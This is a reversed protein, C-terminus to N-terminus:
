WRRFLRRPSPIAHFGCHARLLNEVISAANRIPSSDPGCTQGAAYIGELVLLLTDALQEPEEAGANSLLLHFRTRLEARSERILRRIEQEPDPYEDVLRLFPSFCADASTVEDLQDTFFALIQRAPEDPFRSLSREWEAEFRKKWQGFCALVLADKSAFCRYLTMKKIGANQAVADMSVAQIGSRFFLESAVHLALERTVAMPTRKHVGSTESCSPADLQLSPTNEM